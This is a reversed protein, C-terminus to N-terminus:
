ENEKDPLEEPNLSSFHSIQENEKISLLSKLTDNYKPDKSLAEIYQNKINDIVTINM